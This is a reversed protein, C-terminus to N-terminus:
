QGSTEDLQSPIGVKTAIANNRFFCESKFALYKPQRKDNADSKLEMNLCIGSFDPVDNDGFAGQPVFKPQDMHLKNLYQFVQPVASGGAFPGIIGRCITQPATTVNAAVYAPNATAVSLGPIKVRQLMYTGPADPDALVKYIHTEVNEEDHKPSALSMSKDIKTPFGYPGGVAAAAKNNDFIPIQVILTDGSCTYPGSGWGTGSPWGNAPAQGAGYLPNNNSPFTTTGLYSGTTSDLNGYVDGINRAQRIDQSIHTIAISGNNVNDIVNSTSGAYKSHLLLLEGLALVGISVLIVSVLMEVITFGGSGRRIKSLSRTRGVKM